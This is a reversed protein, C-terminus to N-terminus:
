TTGAYLYGVGRVTKLYKPVVPDDGIKQRIRSIYIDVSRDYGNHERNYLSLHIDNRSVVKGVNKHLIVLIDFEISTLQVPKGSVIVDRRVPDIFLDEVVVKRESLDLAREILSRIKAILLLPKYPRGILDDAGHTLALIHNLENYKTTLIILPGGYRSRIIRCLALEDAKSSVFLAIIAPCNDPMVLVTNNRCLEEVVYFGEAKLFSITENASEMDDTVFLLAQKLDEVSDM